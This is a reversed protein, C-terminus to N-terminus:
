SIRKNPRGNQVIEWLEDLDERAGKVLQTMGNFKQAIAKLKHLVDEVKADSLRSHDPSTAM